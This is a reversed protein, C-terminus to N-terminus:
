PDEALVVVGDVVVAGYPLPPATEIPTPPGPTSPSFSSERTFHVTNSQNVQRAEAPVPPGVTSLCNNIASPLLTIEEDIGVIIIPIEELTYKSGMISVAELRLAYDVTPSLTGPATSQPLGKIPLVTDWGFHADSIADSEVRIEKAKNKLRETENLLYTSYRMLTARLKCPPGGANDVAMRVPMEDHSRFATRPVGGRLAVEGTKIRFFTRNRRAERWVPEVLLRLSPLVRTRLRIETKVRDDMLSLLGRKGSAVLFYKARGHDGVVDISPPLGANSVQLAAPIQFGFALGAGPQLEAHLKKKFLVAEMDLLTVAEVIAFTSDNRSRTGQSTGVLRISIKSYSQKGGPVKVMGSVVEGPEYVSKSVVIELM